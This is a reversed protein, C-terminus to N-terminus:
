KSLGAPEAEIPIPPREREGCKVAMAVTAVVMSILLIVLAVDRGTSIHAIVRPVEGQPICHM